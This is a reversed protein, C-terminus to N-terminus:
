SSTTRAPSRFPWNAGRPVREPPCGVIEFSVVSAAGQRHAVGICDSATDGGGIVLVRKGAASIAPAACDGAAVKAHGTLFEWAGVVGALGRGPVPLERARTAGTAILVADHRERLADWTVDRGVEIGCEFAIGSARMVDLRRDVVAKDLKFDPVGYRLLGGPRDDREYVTVAHGAEALQAAAALGAPGSGVVGVTKGSATAVTPTVWGESFAREGISQEIHEIAVPEAILGLVCAQECPAPCIRGTIEPFTNTASLFAFAQEWHGERVTENFDPIPNGLPCGSQCFPVGCDMCRRAQVRVDAALLPLEVPLDDAVREAVPRRRASQRPLRLFDFTSPM